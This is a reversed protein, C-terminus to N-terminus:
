IEGKDVGYASKGSWGYPTTYDVEKVINSNLYGEFKTGFLTEPRLYQEMNTGKWESVKKDIVKKFDDLIFGENFRASILSRTKTNSTRYRTGCKMNLYDIIEGYPITDKIIVEEDGTELNLQVQNTAGDEFKLKNILETVRLYSKKVKNQSQKQKRDIFGQNALNDLRNKMGREQLKLFPLDELVVSPKIWVYKENEIIISELKSNLTKYLLYDLIVLDVCDVNYNILGKQEYGFISYKM